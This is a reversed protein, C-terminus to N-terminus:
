YVMDELFRYNVTKLEALKENKFLDFGALNFGSNEKAIRTGGKEVDSLHLEIDNQPRLVLLKIQKNTSNEGFEPSWYSSTSASFSYKEDTIIFIFNMTEFFTVSLLCKGEEALNIPPSFSFNGNADKTENQAPTEQPKTTKQEFLKDTHNVKLLLMENNM